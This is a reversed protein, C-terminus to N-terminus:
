KNAQTYTSTPFRFQSSSRNSVVDTGGKVYNHRLTLANGASANFDLRGFALNSPTLKQIDGLGGPNYGYKTILDQQLRAASCGPVSGCVADQTGSVYTTGASGDASTGDPQSKRNREGNVFFFLKDQMIPVGLRGGYQSYDFSTIPKSVIGTTTGNGNFCCGVAGATNTFVPVEKGVSKQDRKTGYLSGNFKNSGSRTVANIGGGTFGGQRVDYPSVVLQLQQIADLSIPQTNAQGGPTGTGALGFLDNNVAGDIQINNYRNNRGAVNLTTPNSETPDTVFYPNTRAFDQITRNVTPLTEIQRTTVSSTSGTHDPNIIPDTSATVTISESVNALDLIIRVETSEGLRVQIDRTVSPKFGELNASVTYPGGVRANPITFRGNNETVGAYRTGTPVHVAEITVGPLAANDARTTVTGTLNGSTTQAQVVPVFVIACIAFIIATLRRAASM